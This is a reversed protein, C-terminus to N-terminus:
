KVKIKGIKPQVGEMVEPFVIAIDEEQVKFGHSAKRAREFALLRLILAPLDKAPVKKVAAEWGGKPKKKYWPGFALKPVENAYFPLSTKALMRLLRETADDPVKDVLIVLNDKITDSNLNQLREIEEKAKMQKTAWCGSKLCATGTSGHYKARVKDKCTNCVSTKFLPLNTGYGLNGSLVQWKDSARNTLDVEGGEASGAKGDKALKERKAKMAKKAENMKPRYCSTKLCFKIQNNGGYRTSSRVVKECKKCDERDFHKYWDPGWQWEGVQIAYTQLGLAIGFADKVHSPQHYERYHSHDDLEKHIRELFKPYEVYKVLLVMSEIGLHGEKHMRQLNAPLELMRIRASVWGPSKGIRRGIEAQSLETKGVLHLLAAGEEFPLLDERQLNELLMLEVLENDDVERVVVPVTKLKAAKAAKLRREGAVLEYNKGKERVLLPVVVGHVKISEALETLGKPDFDKRPNLGSLKIRKVEVQQVTTEATM